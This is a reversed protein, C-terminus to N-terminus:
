GAWDLADSLLQKSIATYYSQVDAQLFTAREKEKINKFYEIAETTNALLSLKSKEKVIKVIKTLIQQSVKGFM